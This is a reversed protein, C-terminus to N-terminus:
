RFISSPALPGFSGKGASANGWLRAIVHGEVDSHEGVGDREKEPHVTSGCRVQMDIAVEVLRGFCHQGEHGWPNLWARQDLKVFVGVERSGLVVFLFGKSFEQVFGAVFGDAKCLAFM